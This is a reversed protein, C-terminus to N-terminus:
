EGAIAYIQDDNLVCVDMGQIRAQQYNTSFYVKQGVQLDKSADTGVFRIIGQYEEFEPMVIGIMGGTSPKPAKKLKEVAVRNGRFQIQM